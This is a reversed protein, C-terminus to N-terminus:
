RLPLLSFIAAPPTLEAKYDVILEWAFLGIGVLVFVVTLV